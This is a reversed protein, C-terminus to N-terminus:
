TPTNLKNLLESAEFAIHLFEQARVAKPTLTIAKDLKELLSLMEPYANHRKVVQAALEKGEDHSMRTNNDKYKGEKDIFEKDAWVTIAKKDDAMIEYTIPHGVTKIITPADISLKKSM